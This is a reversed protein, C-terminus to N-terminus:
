RMQMVICDLNYIDVEAHPGSDSNLRRKLTRAFTRALSMFCGVEELLRM